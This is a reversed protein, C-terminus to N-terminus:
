RQGLAPCRSEREVGDQQGLEQPPSLQSLQEIRRDDLLSFQLQLSERRIAFCAVDFTDHVQEPHEARQGDVLDGLAGLRRHQAGRGDLAGIGDSRVTLLRCNGFVGGATRLELNREPLELAGIAYQPHGDGSRLLPRDDLIGGPEAVCQAYRQRDAHRGREDLGDRVRDAIKDAPKRAGM